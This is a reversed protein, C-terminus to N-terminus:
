LGLWQTLVTFPWVKEWLYHELPFGATLGIWFSSSMLLAKSKHYCKVFTGYESEHYHFKIKDNEEKVM